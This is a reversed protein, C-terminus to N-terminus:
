YPVSPRSRTVSAESTVTIRGRNTSPSPSSAAANRSATRRGMPARGSRSRIPARSRTATTIGSMVRGIGDSRSRGQSNASSAWTGAPCIVMMLPVPECRAFVGASSSRM